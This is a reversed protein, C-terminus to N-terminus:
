TIVKNNLEELEKVLSKYRAVYLSSSSLGYNKGVVLISSTNLVKFKRKEVNHVLWINFLREALYAPTRIDLYEVYKSWDSQAELRFMINFIWEFYENVLETKMIFNLCTYMESASVVKIAADIYEPYLEKMILIAADMDEHHHWQEYQQYVTPTVPFIKPLIIDYNDICKLINQQTYKKFIKKFNSIYVPKFPLNEMETIDFDLFRRYHAFGVYKADTNPLFNKWVWYHGSMEAYHKNRDAINIGTNDRIIDPKNDWEFDATMIPQYVDSKFVVNQNYYGVFIKVKPENNDPM